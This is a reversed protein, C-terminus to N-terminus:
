LVSCWKEKLNFIIILSFKENGTCLTSYVCRNYYYWQSCRHETSFICSVNKEFNNHGQPISSACTMFSFKINNIMAADNGYNATFSTYTWALVNFYYVLISKHLSILSCIWWSFVLPHYLNQTNHCAPYLISLPTIFSYSNIM